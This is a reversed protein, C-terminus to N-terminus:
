ERLSLTRTRPASPLGTAPILTVKAIPLALLLALAAKGSPVLWAVAGVFLAPRAVAGAIVAFLM